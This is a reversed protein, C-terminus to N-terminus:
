AEPPVCPATRPCCTHGPRRQRNAPADDNSLRSRQEPVTRHNRGTLYTPEARDLRNRHWPALETSQRSALAFQLRQPWRAEDGRALLTVPRSTAIPTRRRKELTATTTSDFRKRSVVNNSAERKLV